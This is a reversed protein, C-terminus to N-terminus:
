RQYIHRNRGNPLHLNIHPGQRPCYQGPALDFRLIIGNPFMFQKAQKPTLVM